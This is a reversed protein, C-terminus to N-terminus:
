FVQNSYRFLLYTPMASTPNVVVAGDPYNDNRHIQHASAPYTGDAYAYVSVPDGISLPSCVFAVAQDKSAPAFDDSHVGLDKPYDLHQDLHWGQAYAPGVLPAAVSTVAIDEVSVVLRQVQGQISLQLVVHSSNPLACQTDAPRVVAVLAGDARGNSKTFLSGFQSACAKAKDACGAPDLDRLVFADAAPHDSATHDAAPAADGSGAPSSCGTLLAVLLLARTGRNEDPV